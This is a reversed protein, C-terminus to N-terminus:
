VTTRSCSSILIVVHTRSRAIRKQPGIKLESVKKWVGTGNKTMYSRRELLVTVEFQLQPPYLAMVFYRLFFIKIRTEYNKNM